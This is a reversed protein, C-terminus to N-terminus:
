LVEDEAARLLRPASAAFSWLLGPLRRLDEGLSREDQDTVFVGRRMAHLNFLTSLLTFCASAAISAALNPTGRLWHIFLEVSHSATMLVLLAALTGQWRPEVKRFAQTLAGYFGATLVRYIFETFMAAYALRLGGTLNMSFFLGARILSSYLASKWNWRRLLM